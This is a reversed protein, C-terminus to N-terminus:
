FMCASRTTLESHLPGTFPFRRPVLVSSTSVDVGRGFLLIDFFYYYDDSM